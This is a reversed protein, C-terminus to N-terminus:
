SLKDALAKVVQHIDSEDLSPHLPLTIASDRYHISNKLNAGSRSRAGDRYVSLESLLPYHFYAGIGADNLALLVEDRDSDVTALCLNYASVKPQNLLSIGPVSALKDSYISWLEARKSVFEDLRELQCIGLAAAIGNLHYNSAIELCDYKAKEIGDQGRRLVGNSRILRLREGLKPDQTTIMGGEGTTMNKAPHFSFCAAAALSSSGIKSGDPYSGGIAHAADELLTIQNRECIDSLAQMAVSVGAFHVAIIAKTKPSICEEIAELCINPFDAQIDCFVPTGGVLNVATATSVWTVNPVIVEDGHGIDLARLAIELAASGNSCSVATNCAVYRAFLEEFETLISGRALWGDQMLKLVADYEPTGIIHQAYRISM